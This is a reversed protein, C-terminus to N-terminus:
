QENIKISQFKKQLYLVMTYKRLKKLHVMQQFNDVITLKWSKYNQKIVSDITKIVLEKRNFTPIYIHVSKTKM